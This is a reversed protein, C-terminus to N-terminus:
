QGREDRDGREDDEEVVDYEWESSEEASQISSSTEVTPERARTWLFGGLIGLSAGVVLVIPQFPVVGQTRVLYSTGDQQVIAQSEFPPTGTNVTTTANQNEQATDFASQQVATLNTYNYRPTDPGQGVGNGLETENGVINVNYSTTPLAFGVSLVVVGAIVLAIAAQKSQSLPM